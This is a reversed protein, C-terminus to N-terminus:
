SVCSDAPGLPARARLGRGVVCRRLDSALDPSLTGEWPRCTRAYQVYM